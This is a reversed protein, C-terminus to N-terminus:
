SEKKGKEKRVPRKQIEAKDESKQHQSGKIASGSELRIDGTGAGGNDGRIVKSHETEKSKGSIRNFEGYVEKIKATREKAQMLKFTSLGLCMKEFDDYNLKSCARADFVTKRGKYVVEM